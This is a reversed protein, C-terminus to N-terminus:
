RPGRLARRSAAASTTKMQGPFAEWPVSDHEEFMTLRM